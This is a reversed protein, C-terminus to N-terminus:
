PKPKQECTQKQNKNSNNVMSPLRDLMIEDIEVQFDQIVQLLSFFSTNTDDDAIHIFHEEPIILEM